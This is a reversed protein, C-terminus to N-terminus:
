CSGPRSGDFIHELGDSLKAPDIVGKDFLQLVRAAINERETAQTVGHKACYDDLAKALIALEAPHAIGPVPRM